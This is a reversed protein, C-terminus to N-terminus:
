ERLLHGVAENWDKAHRLSPDPSIEEGGGKLLIGTVSDDSKRFHGPDDEILHSICMQRCLEVKSANQMKSSVYGSVFGSMGNKHMWEVAASLMPGSRETVVYLSYDKSLLTISEKAGDVPGASLTCERSCVEQIMLDYEAETLIKRDETLVTRNAEWSEISIGKKELVYERKLFGTDCITGDFDIGVMVVGM